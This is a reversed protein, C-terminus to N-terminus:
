EIEKYCNPHCWISQVWLDHRPDVPKECYACTLGAQLQYKTFNMTGLQKNQKIKGKLSRQRQHRIIGYASATLGSIVLAVLIDMLLM